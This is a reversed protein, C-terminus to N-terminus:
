DQELKRKIQSGLDPSPRRPRSPYLLYCPPDQGSDKAIIPSTPRNGRYQPSELGNTYRRKVPGLATSAQKRSLKESGRVSLNDNSVCRLENKRPPRTRGPQRQYYRGVTSDLVSCERSQIEKAENM